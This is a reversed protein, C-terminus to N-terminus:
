SIKLMWLKRRFVIHMLSHNCAKPNQLLLTYTHDIFAVIVCQLYAWPVTLFLSLVSVTVHCNFYLLMVAFSSIVSVTRGALLSLSKM